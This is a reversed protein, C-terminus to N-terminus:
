SDVARKIIFKPYKMQSKAWTPRLLDAEAILIAKANMINADVNANIKEYSASAEAIIFNLFIICAVLAIIFWILWFTLNEHFSEAFTSKGIIGFDGASMKIVDIMNGFMLGIYRYETVTIDDPITEPKDGYLEKFKGPVRHNGLGQVSILMSFMISILLYFFNFVRLDKVVTFLMEVIHAFPKLIRMMRFTRTISLQIVVLMIIKSILHFPNFIIHCATM